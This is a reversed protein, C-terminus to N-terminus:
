RLQSFVSRPSFPYQKLRPNLVKSFAKFDVREWTPSGLLLGIEANNDASLPVMPTVMSLSEAAFDVGHFYDYLMVAAWGGDMFHGGFSVALGGELVSSLGEATWDVGGTIVSVNAAKASDLIGLAMLDSAAWAIRSAHPDAPYRLLLRSFMEAARQRQWDAHVLQALPLRQQKALERELGRTREISAFDALNGGIAVVPALAEGQTAPSQTAQGAATQPQAKVQLWKLLDAGAQQEDPLISGIWYRYKERPQGMEAEYERGLGSNFLLVPVRLAEATKINRHATKKFNPLVLADFAPEARAAAEFQKILGIHNGEAYFVQLEIGLDDCAARMFREVPGWYADDASRTTFLGVRYTQHHAWSPFSTAVLLLILVIRSVWGVAAKFVRSPRGGTGTFRRPELLLM